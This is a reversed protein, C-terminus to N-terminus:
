EKVEEDPGEVRDWCVFRFTEEWVMDCGDCELTRIFLPYRTGENEMRDGAKIMESETSHCNPCRLPYKTPKFVNNMTM